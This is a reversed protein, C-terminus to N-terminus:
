FALATEIQRLHHQNHTAVKEFEDKLTRLGTESHIFQKGGIIEFFKDAFFIVSDRNASYSAKSLHLPFTEYELNICFMDQDFAWIVQRPEAIVRKIRELLIAETDALHVLIKKITWKAPAHSKTLEKSPLDFYTETISKTEKLLAILNMSLKQKKSKLIRFFYSILASKIFGYLPKKDNLLINNGFNKLGTFIQM